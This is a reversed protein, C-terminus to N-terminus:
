QTIYGLALEGTAGQVSCPTLDVYSREVFSYIFLRIFKGGKFISSVSKQSPVSVAVREYRFSPVSLVTM